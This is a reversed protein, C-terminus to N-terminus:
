HPCKIKHLTFVAGRDESGPSTKVPNDVNSCHLDSDGSSQSFSEIRLAHVIGDPSHYRTYYVNPFLGVGQMYFCTPKAVRVPRLTISDNM